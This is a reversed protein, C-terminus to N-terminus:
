HFSHLQENGVFQDIRSIVKSVTFRFDDGPAAFRNWSKSKINMLASFGQECERTSPFILLQSVAHTVLNPYSSEM